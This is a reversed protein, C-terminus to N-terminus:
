YLVSIWTKIVKRQLSGNAKFYWLSFINTLSLCWSSWLHVCSCLSPNPYSCRSHLPCRPVVEGTRAQDKGESGWVTEKHGELACGSGQFVGHKVTPSSLGWPMELFMWPRRSGGQYGLSGVRRAHPRQNNLFLQIEQAIPFPETFGIVM